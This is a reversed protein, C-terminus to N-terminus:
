DEHEGGGYLRRFRQYQEEWEGTNEPEYEDLPFSRGIMTRLEAMGALEGLAMLQIGINGAVTAEVPGATVPIGCANATMQCLLRSRAGGGVLHIRHYKRGTCKEIEEVATRYQFALSEDICRVIAGASDPINQGSQRAALRIREPMNGAFAFEPDDPDMFTRFKEAKEALEELQGFTYERGERKWQRRSEQILWTGTLNRLFSVKGMCGLENTVNYKMSQRSIIPRTLETGVLAWTGCSIFLFDEEDAPVAAMAAQTDHGATAIVELPGIGLERQLEGRLSGIRTGSQVVPRFLEKPIKLRDLLEESWQGTRADLLQSTSAISRESCRIGSLAYLILDPMMLLTDAQSLFEPREEVLSYLQFLTNIEMIQNGTLQYLSEGSIEELVRSVMGKTRHDRYHVPNEMLRGRLDLLGFDVGWTDVSVSEARGQTGAAALGTKIEHLLRLFDWYMTGHFVVPENTFRHIEKMFLREGDYEAGMVRGGSAGLDIAAIQRRSM